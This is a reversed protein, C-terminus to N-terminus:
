DRRSWKPKNPEDQWTFTAANGTTTATGTTYRPREPDDEPAIGAKSHLRAISGLDDRPESGNVTGENRVTYVGASALVGLGLAGGILAAWGQATAPAGGNVLATIIAAIATGAGAALAKRMKKLDM